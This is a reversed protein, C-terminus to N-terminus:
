RKKKESTARSVRLIGRAEQATEEYNAEAEKESQEGSQTLEAEGGKENSRLNEGAIGGFYRIWKRKKKVKEKKRAPTM